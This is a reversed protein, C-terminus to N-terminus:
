QEQLRGVMERAFRIAAVMRARLREATRATLAVYFNAGYLILLKFAEAPWSIARHEVFALYAVLLAYSAVAVHSFRLARRFTTNTQDAVRIYLLFFLWSNDAGTQYIVWVFAPIDVALFLTGLNFRPRCREFFLYLVTWSALAYVLLASGIRVPLQWNTSGTSFLEHFIVLTTLIAMGLVRLRPIDVVHFQRERVRKDQETKEPDLLFRSQREQDV